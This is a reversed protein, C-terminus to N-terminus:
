FAYRSKRDRSALSSRSDNKTTGATAAMSDGPSKANFSTRKTHGTGTGFVSPRPRPLAQFVVARSAAMRAVVRHTLSVELTGSPAYSTETAVTFSGSGSHGVSLVKLSIRRIANGLCPFCRAPACSAAGSGNACTSDRARAEGIAFSKQLMKKVEERGESGRSLPTALFSGAPTRTIHPHIEM